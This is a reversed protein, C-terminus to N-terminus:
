QELSVFIDNGLDNVLDMKEEFIPFDNRNM